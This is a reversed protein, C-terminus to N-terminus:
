DGDDESAKGGKEGKPPKKPEKEKEKAKGKEDSRETKEEAGKAKEKEKQIEERDMKEAKPEKFLDSPNLGKEKLARVVGKEKVETEDLQVGKEKAKELIVVQGPNLGSKRAKEEEAEWDKQPTVVVVDDEEPLVAPPEKLQDQWFTILLPGSGVKQRLEELAQRVDVRYLAQAEEPSLGEVGVVNGARDLALTVSLGDAEVTMHAYVRPSTGFFGIGGLALLIAAAAALAKWSRRPRPQVVDEPRFVVDEGPLFSRGRGTVKLFRGDPTLVLYGGEVAKLVRGREM